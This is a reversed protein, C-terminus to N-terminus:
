RPSLDARLVALRAEIKQLRALTEPNLLQGSDRAVSLERMPRLAALELQEIERIAAAHRQNREAVEPKLVWRKQNAQWEHDAAPEPSPPTYDVLLETKRQEILKNIEVQDNLPENRARELRQIDEHIQVDVRQSPPDSVGEVLGCGAPTNLALFEPDDISASVSRGTLLGTALDFIHWRKM